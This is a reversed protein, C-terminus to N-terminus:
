FWVQSTRTKARAFGKEADSKADAICDTWQQLALGAGAVDSYDKGKISLIRALAGQTIGELYQSLADPVITAAISPAVASYTIISSGAAHSPRLEFGTFTGYAYDSTINASDWAM